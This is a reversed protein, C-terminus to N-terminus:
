PLPRATTATQQWWWRAWTHPRFWKDACMHMPLNLAKGLHTLLAAALPGRDLCRFALAVGPLTHSIHRLPTIVGRALQCAVKALTAHIVPAPLFDVAVLSYGM